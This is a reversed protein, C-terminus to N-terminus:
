RADGRFDPKHEKRRADMVSGNRADIKLKVLIGGKRLQKIEYYWGGAERELEVEMIQGPHDREVRQLITQLPLIEGAELAQRAREHDHRDGARSAGTGLTVLMLLTVLVFRYKFHASNSM